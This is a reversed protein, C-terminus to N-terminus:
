NSEYKDYMTWCKSGYTLSSRVTTTHLRGKLKPPIKPDCFVASNQQWRLWGVSIRHNLDEDCNGDTTIISGLYKFSKCKTVVISDLMLDPSPALPDSFPCFMYETKSRSIRLGNEELAEQWKNLTDQMLQVNDTVLAVDDPFLISALLDDMINKTLYNMVLNFLLPSLVSGQHVGVKVEFPDSTGATSRIKTTNNYYM